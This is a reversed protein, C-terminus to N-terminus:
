SPRGTEPAAPTPRTPVSLRSSPALRASGNPPLPVHRRVLPGARWRSPRRVPRPAEGAGRGRIASRKLRRAAGSPRHRHPRRHPRRGPQLYGHGGDVPRGGRGLVGRRLFLWWGLDSECNGLSVMEWDFVAIVDTHDDGGYMQNGPRADGWCLEIHAGDDPWNALLWEWAPRVVPHPTDAMTWHLYNAFYNRRQEPGLQGHHRLDLHQFGAAQWDVKGVRTMAEVGNAAWRQRQAPAMEVVFGEQTYPPSDGPVVGHLRDMVFFPGGLVAADREAWRMRAVPVDSHEGLLKMSLYQQTVLDIEPFLHHTAPQSRLVLEADVHRGDERWSADFLYTENSFGSSQPIELRTIEVASADPLQRALWPELAAQILAPDRQGAVPV